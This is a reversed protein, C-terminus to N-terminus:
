DLPSGFRIVDGGPDHHIGEHMKWSMDAPVQTRGQIGPQTWQEFRDVAGEFIGIEDTDRAWDLVKVL